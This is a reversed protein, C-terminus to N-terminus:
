IKNWVHGGGNAAHNILNRKDFASRSLGGSHYLCIYQCCDKDRITESSYLKILRNIPQFAWIDPLISMQPVEGNHKKRTIQGANSLTSGLRQDSTNNNM